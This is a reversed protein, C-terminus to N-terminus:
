PRGQAQGSSLSWSDSGPAQDAETPGEAVGGGHQSQHRLVHAAERLPTM